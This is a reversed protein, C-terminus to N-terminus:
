VPRYQWDHSGMPLSEFRGVGPIRGAISVLIAILTKKLTTARMM